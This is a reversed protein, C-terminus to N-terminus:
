SHGWLNRFIYMNELVCRAVDCLRDCRSSIGTRLPKSLLLMHGVALQLEFVSGVHSLFEGTANNNASRTLKM